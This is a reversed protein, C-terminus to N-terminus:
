PTAWFYRSELYPLQDITDRKHSSHHNERASQVGISCDRYRRHYFTPDGEQVIQVERSQRKAEGSNAKPHSRKQNTRIMEVYYRKFAQQDGYVEGVKTGVIHGHFGFLSIMVLQLDKVKGIREPAVWFLVNVLNRVDIFVRAVDFNAMTSQIVLVDNYPIAIGQLDQLGFDLIPGMRILSEEVVM